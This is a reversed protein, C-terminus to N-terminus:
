GIRDRLADVRRQLLALGKASAIEAAEALAARAAPVGADNAAQAEALILHAWGLVAAEEGEIALQRAKGAMDLADGLRGLVLFAEAHLVFSAGERAAMPRSDITRSLMVDVAEADGLHAAALARRSFLWPVGAAVEHLGSQENGIDMIEAAREWRGLRLLAHGYGFTSVMISYPQGLACANDFGRRGVAEAEDLRGIEALAWARFSCAFTFPSGGFAFHSRGDESDLSATARSLVRDAEIMEGLMVCAIGLRYHALATLTVDGAAEAVALAEGYIARSSRHRGAVWEIAGLDLLTRSLLLPDDLTRALRAAAEVQPVGGALDGVVWLEDRIRLRIEIERRVPDVAQHRSLADLANNFHSLADRYASHAAARNGADMSYRLAKPWVGGRVSHMALQDLHEALRDEHVREIAEVIRADLVARRERLLGGLAVDHTLAHKFTFEAEPFLRTEYVFENARLVALSDDIQDSPLDAIQGLLARSFDKGIVAATQLVRKIEPDLRDIRAALVAQVNPPVVVDDFRGVLRRQGREGSITGAELLARVSEELFFPNGATRSALLRKLRDLAPELGLLDDLLAQASQPPLTQLRLRTYYTKASWREIFEPRFNVLLLIRAAPLSEVLGDLLGLTEGDAWHLDEFVAVVPREQAERHIIAKFADVVLSRRRGPDARAWAEDTVPVDLISLLPNVIGHLREDLALVRGLCRERIQRADHGPEIGLYSRLLDSAPLYATAKGHSVSGSELVLCGEVRPSHLVEHFLRSKGIGAEGVSAVIQGRGTRVEEIAQELQAIEAERGVFRTFGGPGAAQLRTRAKLAGALEFVPLPETLGKIPMSGLSEFSLWGEALRATSQSVRTTGPRALQELRSALHVTPGIADYEVSLDNGISRVVVEGSNLGIRILPDIGFRSRMDGAVAQMAEHIALATYCARVAHDEHAIPAGFVAMVGDGLLKSVTGEYRHVAKMMTKLTPDLVQRTTEADMGAMMELSGKLDAFMVTVQKAEGEVAGRSTRILEALHRPTQQALVPEVVPATVPEQLEVIAVLLKRRIGIPLGLERLDGETLHRLAEHDIKEAAFREAYEAAGLRALWDAVNPLAGGM